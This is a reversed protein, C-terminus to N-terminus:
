EATDDGSETLALDRLIRYLRELDAEEVLLEEAQEAIPTTARKSAYEAFTFGRWGVAACVPDRLEGPAVKVGARGLVARVM